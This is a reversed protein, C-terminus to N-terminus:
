LAVHRVVPAQVHHGLAAADAVRQRPQVQRTRAQQRAEAEEPDAADPAPERGRDIYRTAHGTRHVSSNAPGVNLRVDRMHTM